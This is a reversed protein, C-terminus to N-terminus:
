MRELIYSDIKPGDIMSSIPKNQKSIYFDDKAYHVLLGDSPHYKRLANCFAYAKKDSNGYIALIGGSIFYQSPMSSLERYEKIGMIMIDSRHSMNLLLDFADDEFGDDVVITSVGSNLFRNIVSYNDEDGIVLAEKAGQCMRQLEYSVNRVPTNVPLLLPFKGEEMAEPNHHKGCGGCYAAVLNYTDFFM